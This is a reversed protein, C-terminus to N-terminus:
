HVNKDLWSMFYKAIDASNKESMMQHGNGPLGVDELRVFTTKVGAQNLWKAVCHAYPRHYSAEGTVNLVPISQLNILKHAPEKQVWCPLLDPGDAKEERVPHLESPDNVPPEYHIFSNTVGWLRGPGTSGREANEIPPAVPEPALIAKVLHPRADAVLWGDAAIGSHVLLIVPRGILDLLQVIDEVTTKEVRPGSVGHVETRAYYDFVPDGMKGKNPGEGPWQTQKKWQPWDALEQVRGERIHQEKSWESAPSRGGTWVEEMLSASRQPTVTGDVGPIYPSRGRFPYDMMYVTYGQNVFDYAWGPRGDPTQMVEYAGQGVSEVIFVIPYPHRINKPVWTEVYMAGDMTENGPDGVYKGGVYFHGERGIEATSFTPIAAKSTAAIVHRRMVFWGSVVALALMSLTAILTKSNMM